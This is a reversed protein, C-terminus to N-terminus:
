DFPISNLIHSKGAKNPARLGSKMPEFKAKGNEQRTTQWFKRFIYEKGKTAYSAPIYFSQETGTIAITIKYDLSTPQSEPDQLFRVRLQLKRRFTESILVSQVSGTFTEDQEVNANLYTTISTSPETASEHFLTLEVTNSRM